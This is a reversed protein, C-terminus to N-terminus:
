SPPLTTMNGQRPVAVALAYIDLRNNPILASGGFTYGPIISQYKYFVETTIITQNTSLVLGGPLSGLNVKSAGCNGSGSPYSDTWNLTAPLATNANPQSISSVLVCGYSAFNFPQSIQAASVLLSDMQPKTLDGRTVINSVGQATRNMKNFCFVYNSIEILGFVTLILVPALIAFEIAAVGKDEKRIRKHFYKM